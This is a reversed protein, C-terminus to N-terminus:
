YRFITFINHTEIMFQVKTCKEVVVRELGMVFGRGIFDTSVYITVLWLLPQLYQWVVLFKFYM